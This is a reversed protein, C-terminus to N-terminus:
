RVVNKGEPSLQRRRANGTGLIRPERKLGNGRRHFFCSVRGKGRENPCQANEKYRSPRPTNKKSVCYLYRHAFLNTKQKGEKKEQSRQQYVVLGLFSAEQCCSLQHLREGRKPLGPRTSTTEGEGRKPAKRESSFRNKKKKVPLLAESRRAQSVGGEGRGGDRRKPPQQKRKKRLHYRKEERASTLSKRKEKRQYVSLAPQVAGLGV